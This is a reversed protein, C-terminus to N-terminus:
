HNLFNKRIVSMRAPNDLIESLDDLMGNSRFVTEDLIPDSFDMMILFINLMVFRHGVHYFIQRVNSFKQGVHFFFRGVHFFIHEDDGFIQGDDSLFHGDDITTDSMPRPIDLLDGSFNLM